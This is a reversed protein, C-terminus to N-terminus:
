RFLNRLAKGGRTHDRGIVYLRSLRSLAYQIRRRELHIGAVIDDTNLKAAGQFVDHREAGAHDIAQAVAVVGLGSVHRM